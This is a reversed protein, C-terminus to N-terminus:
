KEILNNFATVADPILEREANYTPTKSQFFSEEMGLFILSRSELTNTVNM